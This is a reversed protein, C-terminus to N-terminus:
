MKSGLLPAQMEYLIRNIKDIDYIEHNICYVAVLDTDISNSFTYGAKMLLTETEKLNLKLAIALAIINNKKPLHNSDTMISSFVSKSLNARKYVEANSLGTRNIYQILLASFNKGALQQKAQGSMESIRNYRSFGIDNSNFYSFRDPKGLLTNMYDDAEFSLAERDTDDSISYRVGLGFAVPSEKEADNGADIAKQDEEKHRKEEERKKQEEQLKQLKAKRLAENGIREKEAITLYNKGYNYNKYRSVAQYLENDLQMDKINTAKEPNFLKDLLGM